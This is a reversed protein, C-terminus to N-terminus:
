VILIYLYMLWSYLDVVYIFSVYSSSCASYYIILINYDFSIIEYFIYCCSYYYLYYICHVAAAFKLFLVM